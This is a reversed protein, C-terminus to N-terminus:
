IVRRVAQFKDSQAIEVSCTRRLRTPFVVFRFRMQNCVHELSGRPAFQGNEAGGVRCGIAGRNAIVDM